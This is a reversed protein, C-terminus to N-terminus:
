KSWHAYYVWNLSIENIRLLYLCCLNGLENTCFFYYLRIFVPVLAPNSLVTLSLSILNHQTRSSPPTSGMSLRATPRPPPVTTCLLLTVVTSQRSERTDWLSLLYPTRSVGSSIVRKDWDNTEDFQESNVLWVCCDINPSALRHYCEWCRAIEHVKQQLIKVMYITTIVRSVNM